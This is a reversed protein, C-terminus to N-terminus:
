AAKGKLKQVRVKGTLLDHMLGKKLQQLTTLKTTETTLQTDISELIAAIAKQEPLPPLAVGMARLSELRIGKVTSGSSLKEIEARYCDLWFFLFDKNLSSKPFLAKLDQNITVDCIFKIAKGVAMRTALIITGAPILNSASEKLGIATIYDETKDFIGSNLDKVSAWPIQGNWYEPNKKSPTGGGKIEELLNGLEVVEWAEPIQGLPSPKFKTHDIGRKLLTQLLGQKVKKTQSIVAKTAEIAADVGGLVEAIRKQEPLPPLLVKLKRLNTMSLAAQSTTASLLKLGAQAVDSLIQQMLFVSDLEDSPTIKAVNPALHFKNDETIVSVNGISGVYGIVLDGKKLQSRPLARSTELPITQINTLDLAGKLINLVRITIIEGGISYDFFKTYEYGALKTVFCCGGLEQVEWGDPIM